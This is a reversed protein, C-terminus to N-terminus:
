ILEMLKGIFHEGIEPDLSEMPDQAQAPAKKKRDEHSVEKGKRKGKKQQAAEKEVEKPPMRSESKKNETLISLIAPLIIDCQHQSHLRLVLSSHICNYSCYMGIHKMVTQVFEKPNGACDRLSTNFADNQSFDYLSFKFKNHWAFTKDKTLGTVKILLFLLVHIAYRYQFM